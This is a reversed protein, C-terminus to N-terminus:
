KVSFSSGCGCTTNANPNQVVFHAGQLNEVYDITAGVLYQLSYVDVVIMADNKKIITDDPQQQADFAFVYQYGSCGGGEIYVRLALQPNNEETVLQLVKKAAADTVTLPTQTEITAM